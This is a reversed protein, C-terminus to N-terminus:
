RETIKLDVRNLPKETTKNGLARVDIRTSRVGNEILFSRIALARSLSMRRAHSSSLSPGGAYAMLQLRKNVTGKLSEALSVLLKKASTPLKTQNQAFPVRLEKADVGSVNTPPLSAQQIPREKNVVLAAPPVPTVKKAIKPAAKISPASPPATQKVESVSASTPKIIEQGAQTQLKKPAKTIIKPNPPVVKKPSLVKAALLSSKKASKVVAVNMTRSQIAQTKKPATVVKAKKETQLTSTLNPSPVHLMSKTAPKVNVNKKAQLLSSGNAAPVHLMSRPTQNGPRLLKYNSTSPLIGSGLSTPQNGGGSSIVSLDVTVNPHTHDMLAQNQSQANTQSSFFLAMALTAMGGLVAPSLGLFKKKDHILYM